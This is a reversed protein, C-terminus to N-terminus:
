TSHLEIKPIDTTKEQMENDSKTEKKSSSDETVYKMKKSEIEDDFETEKESSLDVIVHKKKKSEIWIMRLRLKYEKLWCSKPGINCGHHNLFKMVPRNKHTSEHFYVIILAYLCGNVAYKKHLTHERIGKILFNLVHGGWNWQRITDVHLIPLLHVLYVKNITRPLLFFMQIYLIFTSKLKLRNEEGDVSMEMM